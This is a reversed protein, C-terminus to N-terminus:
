STFHLELTVINSFVFLNIHQLFLLIFSLSFVLITSNYNTNPLALLRDRQNNKVKAKVKKRKWFKKKKTQHVKSQGFVFICPTYLDWMIWWVCQCNGFCTEFKWAKMILQALACMKAERGLEREWEIERSTEVWKM